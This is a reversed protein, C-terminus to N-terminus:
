SSSTGRVHQGDVRRALGLPNADRLGAPLLHDPVDQYAVPRLFRGIAAAGVSTHLPSTTAPYPGGHQMAWTVSVGTPWGNWIVRGTKEALTDILLPVVAEDSEGHVTATLQGEIAHAVAILEDEEEYEAVLSVPGFCEALLHEADAVLEEATTRLLTPTTTGDPHRSGAAIVEISPRIRLAELGEQYAADIRDNLLQAPAQAAVLSRLRQRDLAGQPLLLIGPQTCFQGAGLSFSAVYGSLIEELRGTAAGRTVFVPNVSGLEGYFPIPKVRGVALDFLMRGVRSSGTFAVAAINPHTVLRRGAEDGEVLAFTGEPAGADHLARVVLEACRTSLRRHGPHAKVVVPCGAALASASDGGAVSFAFPFNSAAFVAVPGIPRLWRRLDPRAGPPWSADPKDICAQLQDGEEIVGALFRLQFTTRALEGRLRAEGLHTESMALLVLEDASPDLRDAVARLMAARASPEFERWAPAAIVAREVIDSVELFSTQSPHTDIDTM